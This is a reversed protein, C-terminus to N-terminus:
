GRRIRPGYAIDHGVKGALSVDDVYVRDGVLVGNGGGVQVWRPNSLCRRPVVVRVTGARYDIHTRLGRCKRDRDNITWRQEGQWQEAGVLLDLEARRRENTRIGFAHVDIAKADRTLQASRLIIRVVKKGHTVRLALADGQNRTPEPRSPVDNDISQNDISQSVVDHAADTVTHTAAIAPLPALVVAATTALGLTLGSTRGPTLRRPSM